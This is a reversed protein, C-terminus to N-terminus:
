ARCGAINCLQVELCSPGDPSGTIKSLCRFHFTLQSPGGPAVLACGQMMLIKLFSM